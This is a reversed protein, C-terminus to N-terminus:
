TSLRYSNSLNSYNLFMCHGTVKHWNKTIKFSPWELDSIYFSCQTRNDITISNRINFNLIIHVKRLVDPDNMRGSRCSVRSSDVSWPTSAQPTYVDKTCHPSYLAHLHVSFKRNTLSLSVHHNVAYSWVDSLKSASYCGKNERQITVSMVEARQVKCQRLVRM